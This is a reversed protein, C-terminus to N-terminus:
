VLPRKPKANSYDFSGLSANYYIIFLLCNFLLVHFIMNPIYVHYQPLIKITLTPLAGGCSSTSGSDFDLM